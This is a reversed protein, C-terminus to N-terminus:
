FRRGSGGGSKARRSRVEGYAWVALLGSASLAGIAFIIYGAVALV